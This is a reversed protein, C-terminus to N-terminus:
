VCLCHTEKHLSSRKLCSCSSCSCKCKSSFLVTPPPTVAQVYVVTSGDQSHSPPWMSPLPNDDSPFSWALYKWVIFLNVDFWRQWESISCIDQSPNCWSESILSHVNYVPWLMYWDDQRKWKTWTIHDTAIILPFIALWLSFFCEIESLYCLFSSLCSHIAPHGQPSPATIINSSAASSHHPDILSQLISHPLTWACCGVWSTNEAWLFPPFVRRSIVATANFFSFLFSSM